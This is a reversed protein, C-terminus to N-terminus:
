YFDFRGIYLLIKSTRIHAIVGQTQARVFDVFRRATDLQKAQTPACGATGSEATAVATPQDFSSLYM